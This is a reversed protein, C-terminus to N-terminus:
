IWVQDAVKKLLESEHDTDSATFTVDINDALEDITESKLKINVAKKLQEEKPKRPSYSEWIPPPCKNYKVSQKKGTDKDETKKDQFAELGAVTPYVRDILYDYTTYSLLLRKIRENEIKELELDQKLKACDETYENIVKQKRM